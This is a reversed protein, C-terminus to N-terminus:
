ERLKKGFHRDCQLFIRVLVKKTFDIHPHSESAVFKLLYKSWVINAMEHRKRRHTINSFLDFFAAKDCNVIIAASATRSQYGSGIHCSIVKFLGAQVELVM